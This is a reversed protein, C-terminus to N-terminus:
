RTARSRRTPPQKLQSWSIPKVSGADIQRSRRDIEAAWAADIAEESRDDLAAILDEALKAKDRASLALAAAFVQKVTPKM